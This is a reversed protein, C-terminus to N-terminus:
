IISLFALCQSGLSPDPSRPLWSFPRRKLASDSPHVLKLQQGGELRQLSRTGMCSARSAKAKPRGMRGGGTPSPCPRKVSIRLSLACLRSSAGLLHQPATVQPSPCPHWWTVAAAPTREGPRRLARRLQGFQTLRCERAATLSWPSHSHDPLRTLEESCM